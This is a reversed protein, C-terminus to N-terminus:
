SQKKCVSKVRIELIDDQNSCQKFKLKQIRDWEKLLGVVHFM